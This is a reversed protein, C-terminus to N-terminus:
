PVFIAALNDLDEPFSECGVVAHVVDTLDSPMWATDAFLESAETDNLRREVEDCLVSGDQLATAWAEFESSQLFEDLSGATAARAAQATEAAFLQSHWATWGDHLDAIQEPPELEHLANDVDARLAVNADLMAQLDAMTPTAKELYGSWIAEGRPSFEENMSNLTEVYDTLSPSGTGCGSVLTSVLVLGSLLIRM